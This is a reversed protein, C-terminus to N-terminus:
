ETQDNRRVVERFLETERRLAQDIPLCRGNHLARMVSRILFGSRRATLAEIFATGAKELERTPAITDVIGLSMAEPARVVKASLILEIVAQRVATGQAFATGGLGPVLGHDGEPFGFIANPSSFRFHCALAIELGAGLCGGRILAVV